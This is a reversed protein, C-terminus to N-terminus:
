PQVYAKQHQQVLHWRCFRGWVEASTSPRRGVGYVLHLRGLPFNEYGTWYCVFVFNWHCIMHKKRYLVALRFHIWSTKGCIYCGKDSWESDNDVHLLYPGQICTYAAVRKSRSGRVLESCRGPVATNPKKNRSEWAVRGGWGRKKALREPAVDFTSRAAGVAEMAKTATPTHFVNPNLVCLNLDVTTWWFCRRSRKYRDDYNLRTFPNKAPNNEFAYPKNHVTSMELALRRPKPVYLALSADATFKCVSFPVSRPAPNWTLLLETWSKCATGLSTTDKTLLYKTLDYSALFIAMTVNCGTNYLYCVLDKVVRWGQKEEPRETDADIGLYVQCNFRYQADNDCLSWVNTACEDPNCPMCVRFSCKGRFSVFVEDVCVFHLRLTLHRASTSLCAHLFRAYQRWNTPLKEVNGSRKIKLRATVLFTQFRRPPM